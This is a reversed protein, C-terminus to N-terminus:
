PTVFSALDRYRAEIAARDQAALKEVSFGEVCFSATVTGYLMARRLAAPGRDAASALSGMFGGAFADGAGTPDVVEEVPYAPLAFRVDRGFLFAGHEGKKVLVFRPGKELLLRAAQFLNTRGTLMRAEEDNVVFGHVVRLLTELEGLKSDIWLNMTDLVVLEPARVQALAKRQVAPEANALFVLKADRYPEPLKPDFHEFVNLATDLTHRTNWDAEYRGAWRFTKGQAVEIGRVDIGALDFQKMAEAPFDTGVVGVISVPGFFRAAHAFYTASGGLAEVRSEYPTEIADFALTGVVLLSSASM